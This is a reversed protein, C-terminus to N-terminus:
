SLELVIPFDKKSLENSFPRSGSIGTMYSTLFIIKTILFNQEMGNINLVVKGGVKFPINTNSTQINWKNGNTQYVGFNTITEELGKTSSFVTSGSTSSDSFNFKHPIKAYTYEKTGDPKMNYYTWDYYLGKLNENDALVKGRM